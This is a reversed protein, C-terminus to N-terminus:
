ENLLRVAEQLTAEVDHNLAADIANEMLNSPSLGRWEQPDLANLTERLYDLDRSSLHRSAGMPMDASRRRRKDTKDEHYYMPEGFFCSSAALRLNFIPDGIKYSPGGMWNLHSDKRFGRKNSTKNVVTM